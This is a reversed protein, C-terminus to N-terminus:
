SMMPVDLVLDINDVANNLLCISCEELSEEEVLDMLTTFELVDDKTWIREILYINILKGAFSLDICHEIEM